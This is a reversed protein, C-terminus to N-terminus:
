IDDPFHVICGNTAPTLLRPIVGGVVDDDDYGKVEIVDYELNLLHM